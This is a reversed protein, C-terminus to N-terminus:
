WLNMLELHAKKQKLFHINTVTNIVDAMNFFFFWKLPVDEKM